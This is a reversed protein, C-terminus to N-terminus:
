KPPLLLGSVQLGLSLQQGDNDRSTIEVAEVKLALKDKEVEYLFRTLASLSGFADVRCEVTTYEDNISKSQPKISQVSIRAEQSWRDFAKLLENEAASVSAPLMNTKMHEWQSRIRQQERLLGEGKAISNKLETIRASRAKWAKELPAYVLMNLALLAVSAIAAVALFQQRNEIKM